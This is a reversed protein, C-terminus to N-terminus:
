VTELELEGNGNNAISELIEFKISQPLREMVEANRTWRPINDRRRNTPPNPYKEWTPTYDDAFGSYFADVVIDQYYCGCKDAEDNMAQWNIKPSM